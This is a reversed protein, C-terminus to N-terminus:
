QRRERWLLLVVSIILLGLMVLSLLLYNKQGYSFMRLFFIYKYTYNGKILSDLTNTFNLIIYLPLMAFLSYKLRLITAISVNIIAFIGCVCGFLIIWVLAYFFKNEFYLTHLPYTTAEKATVYYEFNSPDGNASTELCILSLIWEVALPLMFLIFTSIFVSIIKSIYYGTHGARTKIYSNIGSKKDNIFLSHTPFVVILPFLIMYFFSFISWDSLLLLKPIEYMQTIYIRDYNIKVNYIFNGLAFILNIYWTIIAAKTNLIYKVDTVINKLM